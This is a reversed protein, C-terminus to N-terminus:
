GQGQDPDQAFLIPQTQVEVGDDVEEPPIRVSEVSLHITWAFAEFGDRELRAVMRVEAEALEKGLLKYKKRSTEGIVRTLSYRREDEGVAAATTENKTEEAM